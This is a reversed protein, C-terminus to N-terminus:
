GESRALEYLNDDSGRHVRIWVALAPAALDALMWARAKTLEVRYRVMAEVRASADTANEGDLFANAAEFFFSRPAEFQVEEIERLIAEVEDTKEGCPRRAAEAIIQRPDQLTRRAGWTAAAIVAVVAREIREDVQAAYQDRIREYKTLLGCVQLMVDFSEDDWLVYDRSSM